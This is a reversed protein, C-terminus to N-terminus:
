ILHNNIMLRDSLTDADILLQLLVKAEECVLSLVVPVLEEGEGLEAVVIM